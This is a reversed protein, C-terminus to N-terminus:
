ETAQLDKERQEYHARREQEAQEAAQQEKIQADQAATQEKIQMDLAHMEHEHQLKAALEREKFELEKEKMATEMQFRERDMQLEAQAKQLDLGDGGQAETLTKETKAQDLGAKTQKEQAEGEMKAVQAELLRMELEKRKLAEPTQAAAKMNKIIEGRNMLRSNEILVEDPIAVGLEKLGRAQEFQSDELTARDPTSTIVISYEGLTLDNLIEGTVPEAQNITITEAENASGSHVIHVLREDTYFGQVLDLVNRALIFDTRELNDMVKVLNAQGSQKKAQIAKAAVDERDFGQMSDSVGSITKMHEESKYTLRDMGQPTPNPTLKELDNIDKLEIVLGTKAGSQELEEISMNVLSGAKVKYGSNATTNIIHLEQSSGKNLQEQPDLLNEVLGVTQGHVFHPFYPVVTFHKYPSWDDHLVVNDAQVTWKIRKVKKPIINLQGQMQTIVAAIRNRDWSEPVPRMDGTQVDVFHKQTTLVHRQRELVRINRRVHDTDQIGYYSGSLNHGAFRDRVREISDYAYPFLSEEKDKLYDADDQNYLVAIDQYTLWKTVFVDNWEDPDYEEADPDIVVNKSNMMGISVSGQISKSYDMRVDYFGRSRIFGDAAVDSRVWQLQNNHAIQSWVKCLADAVESTAGIGAPRFAIDNRNYIQHGMITSMTSIIKNITLAPRRIQTLAARDENTWQKGVFNNDCREAKQLFDYHGRELCWRFRYWNDSAVSDNVPM